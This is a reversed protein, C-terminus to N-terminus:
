LSKRLTQKTKRCRLKQLRDGMKDGHDDRMYINKQYYYQWRKKDVHLRGLHNGPLSLLLLWLPMRRISEPHSIRSGMFEDFFEMVSIAGTERRWIEAMLLRDDDRCEANETLLSYVKVAVREFDM